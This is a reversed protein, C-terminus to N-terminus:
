YNKFIYKGIIRSFIPHFVMKLLIYYVFLIFSVAGVVFALLAVPNLAIFMTLINWKNKNWERELYGSFKNTFKQTDKMLSIFTNSMTGFTTKGTSIVGNIATSMGKRITSNQKFLHENFTNTVGNPLTVTFTESITKFFANADFNNLTDIFNGM